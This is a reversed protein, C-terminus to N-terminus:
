RSPKLFFSYYPHKINHNFKNNVLLRKINENEISLKYILKKINERENILQEFLEEDNNKNFNLINYKIYKIYKRM